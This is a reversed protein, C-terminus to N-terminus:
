RKGNLIPEWATELDFTEDDLWKGLEVGVGARVAWAVAHLIGHTRHVLAAAEPPLGVKMPVPEEYWKLPDPTHRDPEKMAVKLRRQNWLESAEDDNM